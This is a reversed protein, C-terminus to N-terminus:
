YKEVNLFITTVEHEPDLVLQFQVHLLMPDCKLFYTDEPSSNQCFIHM